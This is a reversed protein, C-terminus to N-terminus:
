NATNSSGGDRMSGDLNTNEVLRRLKAVFDPDQQQQSKVWAAIPYDHIIQDDSGKTRLWNMWRDADGDFVRILVHYGIFDGAIQQDQGERMGAVDDQHGTALKRLDDQTAPLTNASAFNFCLTAQKTPFLGDYRETEKLHQRVDLWLVGLPNETVRVIIVPLPLLMWYRVTSSKVQVINLASEEISDTGKVQAFLMAGTVSSDTDVIEIECDIGYDSGVERVIWRKPLSRRLELVAQEGTVHASSRTPLISVEKPQKKKGGM